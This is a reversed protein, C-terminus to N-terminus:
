YQAHGERPRRRELKVLWSSLIAIVRGAVLMGTILSICLEREWCEKSHQIFLNRSFFLRVPVLFRWVYGGGSISHALRCSARQRRGPWQPLDVGEPAFWLPSHASYSPM